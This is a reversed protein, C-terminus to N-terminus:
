LFRKFLVNRNPAFGLVVGTTDSLRRVTFDDKCLVGFTKDGFKVLHTPNGFNEISELIAAEVRDNMDVGFEFNKLTCGDIVDGFVKLDTLEDVLGISRVYTSDHENSTKNDEEGGFNLTGYDVQVNYQEVTNHAKTNEVSEVFEKFSVEKLTALTGKYEKSM